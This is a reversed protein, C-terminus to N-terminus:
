PASTSFNRFLWPLDKLDCPPLTQAAAPRKGAQHCSRPWERGRICPQSEAKGENPHSLRAATSKRSLGSLSTFQYLEMRPVILSGANLAAFQSKAAEFFEVNVIVHRRHM